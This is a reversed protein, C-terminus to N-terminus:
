PGGGIVELPGIKFNLALSLHPYLGYASGMTRSTAVCSVYGRDESMQLELYVNFSADHEAIRLLLLERRM